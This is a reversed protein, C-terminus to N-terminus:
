EEMLEEIEGLKIIVQKKQESNSFIAEENGYDAIEILKYLYDMFIANNYRM